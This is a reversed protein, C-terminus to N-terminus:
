HRVILCRRPLHKMINCTDLSNVNNWWGDEDEDTTTDDALGTFGVPNQKPHQRCYTPYLGPASRLDIIWVRQASSHNPNSLGTDQFEFPQQSLEQRHIHRNTVKSLDSCVWNGDKSIFGINGTGSHIGRYTSLSPEVCQLIWTSETLNTIMNQVVWGQDKVRESCTVHLSM